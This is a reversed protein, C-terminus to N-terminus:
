QLDFPNEQPTLGKAFLADRTKEYVEKCYREVKIIEPKADEPAIILIEEMVERHKLSATLLRKLFETTDSGDDRDIKELRTAELLYNEAKILTSIALEPKDKEFLMKSSVLRKDSFLLNLEAKRGSNTSFLLWLKDRVVKLPWLPHDPLVKGPYALHYVIEKKQKLGEGNGNAEYQFDFSQTVSASQFISTALIGIAFVFTSLVALFRRLM